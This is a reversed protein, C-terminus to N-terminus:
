SDVARRRMQRLFRVPSPVANVLGGIGRMRAMRGGLRMVDDIRRDLFAWSERHEESQDNLWYLITATQVGALLARKTYFNFDTATDGAAYWVADVTRYLLRAALVGHQPMALFSLSRRAAEKHPILIELRTRVALAVRDRVRMEALDERDLAELMRADAWTSFHEVVEPIGGPFARFAMGPEFGAAATGDRLSQMSWGDFVVNPLTALLISDKIEDMTM